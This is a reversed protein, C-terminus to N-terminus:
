VREVGLNVKNGTAGKNEISIRAYGRGVSLTDNIDINDYGLAIKLPYKSGLGYSFSPSIQSLFEGKEIMGIRNDVQRWGGKSFVLFILSNSFKQNTGLEYNGSGTSASISLPNDPSIVLSALINNSYSAIYYHPPNSDSYPSIQGLQTFTKEGEGPIYIKASDWTDNLLLNVQLSLTTVAIKKFDYGKRSEIDTGTVNVVWLGQADGPLTYNYEYLYGNSIESINTMDENNVKTVGLHDKIVITASSVHDKGLGSTVSARTRVMRNPKFVSTEILAKTYTKVQVIPPGIGELYAIKVKSVTLNESTQNPFYGTKSVNITYNTYFRKVSATQNYENLTQRTIYGSSNTQGTFWSYDYTDKISVNANGLPSGIENRVQIQLYWKVWIVSALTVDVDSKDFTTNVFYSNSSSSDTVQVEYSGSNAIVTDKVWCNPSYAIRIGIVGNSNLNSHSINNSSAYNALFGRGNNSRIDSNMVNNNSSSTISIGNNGNYWVISSDIINGNSSSDFQIGYFDNNSSNVGSINNNSSTTTYIGSQINYKINGGELANGSSYNIYIGNVQNYTINNNFILNDDSLDVFVGSGNNFSVISYEVRNNDSNYLYIGYNNTNNSVNGYSFNNDTSSVFVVGYDENFFVTNNTFNNYTSSSILSIGRDTNSTVFNNYIESGTSSIINIGYTWDSVECNRVIINDYNNIRVGWTNVGDVGDIRYGQCDLTVGNAQIDMCTSNASNWVDQTLVYTEEEANLVSCNDIHNIKGEGGFSVVNAQNAVIQYSQNIWDSSRPTNSVRFEDILGDLWPRDLKRGINFPRNNDPPSTSMTDPADFVGDRSFIMDGSSVNFSVAYYAWVGYHETDFSSVEVEWGGNHHSIAWGEWNNWQSMYCNGGVGPYGSDYFSYGDGIADEPKFWFSFTYDSNNLDLGTQDTDNIMLYSQTNNEFDTAGATVGTGTGTTNMPTLDNDNSTSDNRTGSTETMHWVAVYNSDWVGTANEGSSVVSNNKYYVSITTGAVPLSPIRVWVHANTSMTYNEIEYDLPSGVGSCAVSYFRIDKFDSLMDSDYTLNIYAPFNSLTSSGVNTITINVCRGFTYNSWASVNQASGSFVALVVVFLLLKGVRRM